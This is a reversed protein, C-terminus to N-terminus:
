QVLWQRAASKVARTLPQLAQGTVRMFQWFLPVDYIPTHGITTLRGTDIHDRVLVEPNLGWGLGAIAATVFGHTSPLLHLPPTIRKGFQTHLWQHQLHDKRNFALMPTAKATTASFGEAFHQATFDPSATALYRLSGLPISDCGQVPKAHATVAAMVEGRRLWDTSVDEDDTSIDFLFGGTQAGVQAMAHIFWTDLSDANVVVRIPTAAENPLLGNLDAGLTTELLAVEETHRFLRQGAPTATAPSGRIILVTGLHDELTKIRQSIASPTVNLSTAAAEFSGTRIIARLAALHTYDMM